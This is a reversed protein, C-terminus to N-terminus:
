DFFISTFLIDRLADDYHGHLYDKVSIPQWCVNHLKDKMQGAKVYHVQLHQAKGLTRSRVIRLETM